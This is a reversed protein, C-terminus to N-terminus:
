PSNAIVQHRQDGKIEDVRMRDNQVPAVKLGGGGELLVFSEGNQPIVIGPGGSPTQPDFGCNAFVERFEASV